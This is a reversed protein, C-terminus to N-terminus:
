EYSLFNSEIVDILEEFSEWRKEGSYSKDSLLHHDTFYIPYDGDVNPEDFKFCIPGGDNGYQGFPLLAHDQLCKFQFLMAMQAKLNALPDPPMMKPLRVIGFDAALIQKYLFYERFLAPMKVGMTQEVADLDKETLLSPVAIWSYWGDGSSWEGRLDHPVGPLPNARPLVVEDIFYAM